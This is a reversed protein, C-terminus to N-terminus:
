IWAIQAKDFKNLSALDRDERGVLWHRGWVEQYEIVARPRNAVAQGRGDRHM